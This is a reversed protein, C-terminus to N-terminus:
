STNKDDILTKNFCALFIIVIELLYVVIREILKQIKCVFEKLIYCWLTSNYKWHSVQSKETM